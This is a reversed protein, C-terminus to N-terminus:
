GAAATQALAPMLHYVADRLVSPRVPKDLYDDVHFTKFAENRYSTGRYLSSMVVITIGATKEDEKLRRCLERGDLRPMLADTLLLDPLISAAITAAEEPNACCLTHFGMGRVVQEATSLLRPDDDVILAFPRPLTAADLSLLRAMGTIEEQKRREWLSPPASLWFENRLRFSVECACGGCGPCAFTRERAICGCFDASSLDFAVKCHVCPVNFAQRANSVLQFGTKNM